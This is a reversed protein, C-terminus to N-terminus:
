QDDPVRAAQLEASGLAYPRPGPASSPVPRSARVFSRSTSPTSRDRVARAARLGPQGVQVPQEVLVRASPM